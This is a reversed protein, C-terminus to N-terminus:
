CPMAREIEKKFTSIYIKFQVEINKWDEELVPQGYYHIGNRRTRIKEFFDWNLELEPHKKCLHAFLCQHNSSKIKDFCLFSEVLMHLVDYFLKYASNMSKQKLAYNATELDEESIKLNNKIKEINVSETPKLLGEESCSNYCEEITKFKPM